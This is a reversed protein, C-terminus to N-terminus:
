LNEFMVDLANDVQEEDPEANTEAEAEEVVNNLADVAAQSGEVLEFPLPHVSLDHAEIEAITGENLTVTTMPLHTFDLPPISDDGLGFFVNDATLDDLTVGLLTTTSDGLEGDVDIVLADQGDITTQTSNAAIDELSTLTAFEDSERAFDGVDIMDEAPHFDTIVDNGATLPFLDPGGGGTITDDSEFGQLKESEDTGVLTAEVPVIDDADTEGEEDGDESEGEDGEGYECDEDEGDVEGDDGSNGESDEDEIDGCFHEDDEGDVEDDTGMEDGDEDDGIEGEDAEEDAPEDEDPQDGDIEGDCLEESDEGDMEEGLDLEDDEGDAAEEETEDELEGDMDGGETESDGAEDEPISEDTEDDGPDSTVPLEEGEVSVNTTTTQSQQNAVNSTAGGFNTLTGPDVLIGDGGENTMDYLPPTTPTATPASGVVGGDVFSVPAADGPLLAGGFSTGYTNWLQQNTLGVFEQPIPVISEQDSSEVPVYDDAQQDFYLSQGNLQVRDSMLFFYPQYGDGETDAEMVVNRRQGATGQVATGNLSEFTVNNMDLTRASQRAETILM